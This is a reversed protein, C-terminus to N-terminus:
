NTALLACWSFRVTVKNYFYEFCRFICFYPMYFFDMINPNLSNTQHAIMLLWITLLTAVFPKTFTTKNLLYFCGFMFSLVMFLLCQFWVKDAIFIAMLAFSIMSFGGSLWMKIQRSQVQFALHNLFVVFSMSVLVALLYSSVRALKALILNDSLSQSGVRVSHSVMREYQAHLGYYWAYVGALFIISLLAFSWSKRHNFIGGIVFVVVVVAPLIGANSFGSYAMCVSSFLILLSCQWSSKRFSLFLLGLSLMAFLIPATEYDLPRFSQMYALTTLLPFLPHRILRPKLGFLLAFPVLVMFCITAIIISFPSFGAMMLPTNIMFGPRPIAYFPMHMIGFQVAWIDYFTAGMELPIYRSHTSQYGLLFALYIFFLGWCILHKATFHKRTM